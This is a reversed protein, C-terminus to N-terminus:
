DKIMKLVIRQQYLEVELLYVGKAIQSVDLFNNLPQQENMWVRGSVDMLRIADPKIGSPWFLKEKAPNPFFSLEPNSNITTSLAISVTFNLEESCGSATTIIVSYNGPSLNAISQSTSGNSWDFTYPATSGSVTLDIEGDNGSVADTISANVALASYNCASQVNIQTTSTLLDDFATWQSCVGKLYYNLWPLLTNQTITQQQARTINIGTSSTAEGFDCNINSNAFYCHAGSTISVFHKCAATISNYIPQHHQPPPTVGDQAGSFVLSPQNIGAAAGIASPNTEAPALGVVADVATYGSAALMSAGGGMSHGMFASKGNL